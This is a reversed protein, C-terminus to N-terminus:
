YTKRKLLLLLGLNRMLQERKKLLRRIESVVEAM